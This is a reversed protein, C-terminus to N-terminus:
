HHLERAYTTCRLHYAGKNCSYAVKNSCTILCYILNESTYISAAINIQYSTYKRVSPRYLTDDPIDSAAYKCMIDKCSQLAYKKLQGSITTLVNGPLSISM